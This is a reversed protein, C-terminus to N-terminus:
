NGQVCLEAETTQQWSFIACTTTSLATAVPYGCWPAGFIWMLGSDELLEILYPIIITEKLAISLM